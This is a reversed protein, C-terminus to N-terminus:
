EAASRARSPSVRGDPAHMLVAGGLRHLLLSLPHGDNGPTSGTENAFESGGVDTPMCPCAPANMPSIAVRGFSAIERLRTHLVCLRLAILRM